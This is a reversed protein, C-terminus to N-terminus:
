GKGDPEVYPKCEGTRANVTVQKICHAKSHRAEWGDIQHHYIHENFTVLYYGGNGNPMETVTVKYYYTTGMACDYKGDPNGWYSDAIKWAQEATVPYSSSLEFPSFQAFDRRSYAYYELYELRTVKNGGLYYEDAWEYSIKLSYIDKVVVSTGDFTIRRLGIMNSEHWYFTGDTNPNCFSEASFGYSYVRGEYYRLIIYELQPSRILYEEVGDRDIDLVTKELLEYEGVTDGSPFAIDKLLAGKSNERYVLIEGRIASEYVMMIRESESFLPSKAKNDGVAVVVKDFVTLCKKIVYEHGTTIPDFTGAFVCTKM